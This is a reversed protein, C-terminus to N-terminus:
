TGNIIASYFSLIVLSFLIIYSSYNLYIHPIKFTPFFKVFKKRHEEISNEFFISLIIAIFICSFLVIFSIKLDQILTKLGFEWKVSRIIPRHILYISFTFNSLFQDFHSNGNKYLYNIIISLSLFGLSLSVFSNKIYFPFYLIYILIFLSILAGFSNSVISRRYFYAIMGIMFTFLCFEGTTYIRDFNGTTSRISGNFSYPFLFILFYIGVLTFIAWFHTPKRYFMWVLFPSMLYFVLDLSLSWASGIFLHDLLPGSKRVNLFFGWIGAPFLAYNGFFEKLNQIKIHNSFVIFITLVLWYLPLIRIFRSVFFPLFDMGEAALYKNDLISTILFGSVLFFGFVAFRGDGIYYFNEQGFNEMFYPKIFVYYYGFHFDLVLFALFVRLFGLTLRNNRNLDLNKTLMYM